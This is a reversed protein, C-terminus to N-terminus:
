GRAPIQEDDKSKEENSKTIPVGNEDVEATESTLMAKLKDILKKRSKLQQAEESGAAEEVEASIMMRMGGHHGGGGHGGRHQVQSLDQTQLLTSVMQSGLPRSIGASVGHSAPPTSPVPLAPQAFPSGAANGQGQVGSTGQTANYSPSGGIHSIGHM